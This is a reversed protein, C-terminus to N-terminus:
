RTAITTTTTTHASNVDSGPRPLFFLEAQLLGKVRSSGLKVNAAHLACNDWPNSNSTMWLPKLKEFSTAARKKLTEQEASRMPREADMTSKHANKRLSNLVGKLMSTATVHMAKSGYRRIRNLMDICRLMTSAADRTPKSKSGQPKCLVTWRM